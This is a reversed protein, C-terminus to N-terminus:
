SNYNGSGNSTISNIQENFNFEYDCTNELCWSYSKDIATTKLGMRLVEKDCLKKNM